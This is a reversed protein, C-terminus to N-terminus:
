VLDALSFCPGELEGGFKKPMTEPDVLIGLKEAKPLMVLRGPNRVMLEEIEESLLPFDELTKPECNILLVRGKSGLPDALELAIRLLKIDPLTGHTDILM